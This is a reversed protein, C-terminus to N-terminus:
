KKVEVYKGNKFEWGDFHILGGCYPCYWLGNVRKVIEHHCEEPKHNCKEVCDCYKKYNKKNKIRNFFWIDGWVDEKDIENFPCGFYEEESLEEM